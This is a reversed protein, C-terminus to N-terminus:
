ALRAMAGPVEHGRPGRIRRLGGDPWTVAARAQATGPQDVTVSFCSWVDETSGESPVEREVGTAWVQMLSPSSGITAVAVNTAVAAAEVLAATPYSVAAARQLADAFERASAGLRDFAENVSADPFVQDAQGGLWRTASGVVWVGTLFAAVLTCVAATVVVRTRRRSGRDAM